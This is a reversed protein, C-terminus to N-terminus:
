PAIAAAKWVGVVSNSSDVFRLQAGSATKVAALRAVRIFEAAVNRRGHHLDFCSHPSEANIKFSVRGRAAFQIRGDMSKLGCTKLSWRGAADIVLVSSGDGSSWRGVVSTPVGSGGGPGALNGSATHCGSVAALLCVFVTRTVITRPHSGKHNRRDLFM